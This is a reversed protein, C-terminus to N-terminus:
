YYFFDNLTLLLKLLKKKSILLCIFPATQDWYLVFLVSITIYDAKPHHYYSGKAHQQRVGVMQQDNASLLM